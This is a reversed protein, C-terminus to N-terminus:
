ENNGGTFLFEGNHIGGEIVGDVVAAGSIRGSELTAPEVKSELLRQDQFLYAFIVPFLDQLVVIEDYLEFDETPWRIALFTGFRDQIDLRSIESIDYSSMTTTCNKTLYPGHDGVVIVIAEPDNEIIIEVDQRMELNARSLRERFLEGENVLCAGSNQSHNPLNTHMYIFKPEESEESFFNIKELIFQEKTVENFTVDFQFEGILIAKLLTNAPSSFSPFSYDYSPSIGRIFYDSPFVGYTKYGFGRLLNQVIGDGSIGRRTNGYFDVSANLVRSMTSPSSGGVSYTRPYIQFDLKELYQEQSRNDIGYALMTENIVYADYVLLYVSPTVVPENSCILMVLRNETGDLDTVFSGDDRALLQSFSNTLFYGTILIYLLKHYNLHSLFWSVLFVGAFLPLQIRLSGWEHWSFKLSLIAMNTISFAFGLGLFMVTRTTGIRRVLIPPVLIILAVFLASVIFVYISDLPSLIDQNNIIYQIVPTLPLLLLTLHDSSLKEGPIKISLKKIGRLKAFAFFGLYLFITILLM